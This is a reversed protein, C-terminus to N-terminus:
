WTNEMDWWDNWVDRLVVGSLHLSDLIKDIKKKKLPAIEQKLNGSSKLLM